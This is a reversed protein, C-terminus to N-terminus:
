NAEGQPATSQTPFSILRGSNNSDGRSILAYVEEGMPDHFLTQLEGGVSGVSLHRVHLEASTAAAINSAAALLRAQDMGDRQDGTIWFIVGNKEFLLQSHVGSQWFRHRGQAVWTGDVYIAWTDGFKIERASGSQVVKLVAQYKDAIQFMRVDLVGSGAPINTLVYQVDVIPGNSWDESPLKRMGLYTYDGVTPGM